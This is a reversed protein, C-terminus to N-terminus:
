KYFYHVAADQFVYEAGCFSDMYCASQFFLCGDATDGFMFVYECALITDESIETRWNAFQNEAYCVDELTNGWKGSQLRNFIVSAINCKADFDCGYVETEVTRFMATLESESYIDWIQLPPEIFWSYEDILEKYCLLKEYNDEMACIERSRELCYNAIIEDESPVEDQNEKNEAVTNYQLDEAYAKVPAYATIPFFRIVLFAIIISSIFIRKM